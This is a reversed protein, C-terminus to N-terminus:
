LSSREYTGLPREAFLSLDTLRMGDRVQDPTPIFHRRLFLTVSEANHNDLLHDAYSKTLETVIQEDAGSEIMNNMFETLMFHRHYLLRPKQEDLNPFVGEHVTGDAMRLEYRILHSPGPEPAFFHYGHNLFAGELYPQFLRWCRASLVSSPAVAMPAAILATLHLMLLISVIGRLRPSPLKNEAVESQSQRIRSM